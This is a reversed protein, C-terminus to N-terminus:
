PGCGLARLVSGGRLTAIRRMSGAQAASLLADYRARAEVVADAFGDVGTAALGNGSTIAEALATEATCVLPRGGILADMLVGSGREAYRQRDYALLLLHAGALEAEYVESTLDADLMVVNSAASLARLEAAFGHAPAQIRLRGDSARAHIAAAIAPLAAFGKDARGAGLVAITFENGRPPPLPALRVPTPQVGVECGLADRLREAHADTEAHISAAAALDRALRWYGDAANPGVFDAEPYM